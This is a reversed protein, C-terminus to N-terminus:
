YCLKLKGSSKNQCTQSCLTGFTGPRCALQCTEGMWGAACVCEGSDQKCSSNHSCQCDKSCDDGYKGPECKSDCLIGLDFINM